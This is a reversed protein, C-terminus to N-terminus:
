LGCLVDAQAQVDQASVGFDKHLQGPAMESTSLYSLVVGHCNTGGENPGAAAVAPTAMAVVGGTVALALRALTQKLTRM